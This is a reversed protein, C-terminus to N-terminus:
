CGLRALAPRRWPGDRDDIMLWQLSRGGKSAHLHRAMARFREKPERKQLARRAWTM